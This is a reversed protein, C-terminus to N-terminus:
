ERFRYVVTSGRHHKGKAIENDTRRKRKGEEAEGRAREYFRVRAAPMRTIACFKKLNRIARAPAEQRLGEAEPPSVNDRAEEM